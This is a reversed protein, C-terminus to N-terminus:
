LRIDSISKGEFLSFSSYFYTVLGTFDTKENKKIMHFPNDSDLIVIEIVLEFLEEFRNVWTKFM